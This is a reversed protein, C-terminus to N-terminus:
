DKDVITVLIRVGQALCMALPEDPAGGDLYVSANVATEPIRRLREEYLYINVHDTYWM